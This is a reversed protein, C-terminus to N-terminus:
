WMGVYLYDISYQVMKNLVVCGQSQSMNSWNWVEVCITPSESLAFIEVGSLAWIPMKSLKTGPQPRSFTALALIYLILPLYQLIVQKQGSKQCKPMTM